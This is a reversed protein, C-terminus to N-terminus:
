GSRKAKFGRDHRKGVKQNNSINRSNEGMRKVKTQM